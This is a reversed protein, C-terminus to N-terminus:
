GEQEQYTGVHHAIHLHLCISSEDSLFPSPTL